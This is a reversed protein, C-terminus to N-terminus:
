EPQRIYVRYVWMTGLRTRDTVRALYGKRRMSSAFSKAKGKSTYTMALTYPKGDFNVVKQVERVDKMYMEQHKPNYRRRAM